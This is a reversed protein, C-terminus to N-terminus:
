PISKQVALRLENIDFPKQLITKVDPLKLDQDLPFLSGTMAIIPIDSYIQTIKLIYEIGENQPMLTDAIVLDIKREKIIQIADKGNEVEIVQYNEKGLIRAIMVRIDEDNDILLITATKSFFDFNNRKWNDIIQILSLPSFPKTIYKDAGISLGYEQNEKQTKATLMVVFCDQFVSSSKVFECVSFGDIDGPMMIDLFIIHPRENRIINLAESGNKANLIRCDPISSFTINLLRLLSVNDDVVLIKLENGNM